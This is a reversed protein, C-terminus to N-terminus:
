SVTGGFFQALFIGCGLLLLRGSAAERLVKGPVVDWRIVMSWGAVAHREDESLAGPLLGPPLPLWIDAGRQADGFRVYAGQAFALGLETQLAAVISDDSLRGTAFDPPLSLWTTPGFYEHSRVITTKSYDVLREDRATCRQRYLEHSL